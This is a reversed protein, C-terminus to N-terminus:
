NPRVAIRPRITDLKKKGIGNVRLLDDVTPYPRGQVIRRALMSGIGPLTELELVGAMNLDIPPQDAASPAKSQERM